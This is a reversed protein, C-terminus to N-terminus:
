PRARGDSAALAALASEITRTHGFVFRSMFRFLPNYVEGRETITVETSTDHPTLEFTWTGSFPQDPDAIRTVFRSPATEEVVEMVIAGDTSHQRFTIHGLPTRSLTEVREIDPWWRPYHEVDAIQRYVAEAPRPITRTGSAVHAVPLVLGVVYIMVVAAVLAAAAVLLKRIM